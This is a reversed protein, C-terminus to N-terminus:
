ITQYANYLQQKEQIEVDCVLVIKVLRFLQKMM